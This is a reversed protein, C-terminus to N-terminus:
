SRFHIFVPWIEVFKPGYDFCNHIRIKSIRSLDLSGKVRCRGKLPVTALLTKLDKMGYEGVLNLLLFSLSKQILSFVNLNTMRSTSTKVFILSSIWSSREIDDCQVKQRSPNDTFFLTNLDKQWKYTKRCDNNRKSPIEASHVRILFM